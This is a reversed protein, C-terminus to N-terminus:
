FRRSVTWRAGPDPLDPVVALKLDLGMVSSEISGDMKDVGLVADVMSVVRNVVAFIFMYDRRDYSNDADSWLRWFDLRRQNNVWQWSDAALTDGTYDEQLARAERLRDEDFADSDMYSGVNIWYSDPHTGSTGAYTLSYDIASERWSDGMLDFVVYSGWIGVEIGGMLYARSRHGVYWQGAGPFVASLLSAKMKRGLNSTQGDSHSEDALNSGFEDDRRRPKKDDSALVAKAQGSAEAGLVLYETRLFADHNGDSLVAADAAGFGASLVLAFLLAPLFPLRVRFDRCAPKIQFLIRPTEKM